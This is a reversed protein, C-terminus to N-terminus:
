LNCTIRFRCIKTLGTADELAATWSRMRNFFTESCVSYTSINCLGAEDFKKNFVQPQRGKTSATHDYMEKKGEEPASKMYYRLRVRKVGLINRTEVQRNNTSSGWFNPRKEKETNRALQRCREALGEWLM